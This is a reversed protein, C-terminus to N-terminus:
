RRDGHTRRGQERRSAGPQTSEGSIRQGDATASGGTQSPRGQSWATYPPPGSPGGVGGYYGPAPSAPFHSSPRSSSYPPPPPNLPPPTHYSPPAPMRTTPYVPYNVGTRSSATSPGPYANSSGPRFDQRYGQQPGQMNRTYAAEAPPYHYGSQGSGSGPMSHPSAAPAYPAPDPYPAERDISFVGGPPISESSSRPSTTGSSPPTPTHYARRGAPIAIPSPGPQTMPARAHVNNNNTSSGGTQLTRSAHGNM